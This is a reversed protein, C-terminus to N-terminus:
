FNFATLVKTVPTIVKHLKIIKKIFSDRFLRIKIM